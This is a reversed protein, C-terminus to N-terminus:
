QNEYSLMLKKYNVVARILGYVLSGFVLLAFLGLAIPGSQTIAYTFFAVLAAIAFGCLVYIMVTSISIIIALAQPPLESFFEGLFEILSNINFQSM